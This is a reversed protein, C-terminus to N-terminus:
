KQYKQVKFQNPHQLIYRNGNVEIITPVGNKERIIKMQTNM